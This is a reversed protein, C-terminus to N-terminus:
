KVEGINISIILRRARTRRIKRLTQTNRVFCDFIKKKDKQAKMQNNNKRFIKSMGIFVLRTLM